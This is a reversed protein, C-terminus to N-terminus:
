VYLVQNLIKDKIQPKLAKRTVLDVGTEFLASLWDKLKIFEFIDVPEEFDVLIDIDSGDVQEGRSFSGFVGIEKVHFDRRLDDKHSQLIAKVEDLTKM